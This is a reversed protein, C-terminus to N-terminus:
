RTSRETLHALLHRAVYEAYPPPIAEGLEDQTMWDIGMLAAAEATPIHRHHSGYRRNREIRAGHRLVSVPPGSHRTCSQRLDFARWSTEWWRVREVRDLGFMCGCTILDPRLHEAGPAPPVNEIVWPLGSAELLVRTPGILSPHVSRDPTARSRAQCPPAAAIADFRALFGPDALVDLADAHIFEFPYRPQPEKDVGTVAFGARAFGTGTGGAKCHTDLLAPPDGSDPTWRM